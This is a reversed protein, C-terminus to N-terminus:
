LKPNPTKLKKRMRAPTEARSTRLRPRRRRSIDRVFAETNAYDVYSHAL